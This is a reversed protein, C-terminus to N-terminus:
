KCKYNEKEQWDYDNKLHVENGFHRKVHTKLNRFDRSLVKTSQYINDNLINYIFHGLSHSGGQSPYIYIFCINCALSEEQSIYSLYNFSEWLYAITKCHNLQNNLKDSHEDSKPLDNAHKRPKM